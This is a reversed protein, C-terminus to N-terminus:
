KSINKFGIPVIQGELVEGMQKKLYAGFSSKM